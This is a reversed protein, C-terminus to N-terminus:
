PCSSPTRPPDDARRVLERRVVDADALGEVVVLHRVRVDAREDLEVTRDEAVGLAPGGDLLRELAALVDHHEAVVLRLTVGREDRKEGLHGM